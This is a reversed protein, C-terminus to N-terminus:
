RADTVLTRIRYISTSSAISLDRGDDGGFCLNGTLEPVRIRGVRSGALKPTLKQSRGKSRSVRNGNAQM